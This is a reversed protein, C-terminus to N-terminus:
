AVYKGVLTLALSKSLLYVSMYMYVGVVVTGDSCAFKDETGCRGFTDFEERQGLCRQYRGARTCRASWPGFFRQVVRVTVADPDSQTHAPRLLANPM